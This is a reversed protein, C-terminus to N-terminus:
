RRQSSATPTHLQPIYLNSVGLVSEIEHDADCIAGDIHGQFPIDNVNTWDGNQERNTNHEGSKLGQSIVM